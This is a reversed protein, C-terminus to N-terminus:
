NKKFVITEGADGRKLDATVSDNEKFEGSIIKTSLPNLILKQLTRKLPRAGFAPDYGIRALLKIVTPDIEMKIGQGGVLETIDKLNLAVIKELDLDKGRVTLIIIPIKKYKKDCKLTGCVRYGDMRPLVLDLIILDPKESCAM